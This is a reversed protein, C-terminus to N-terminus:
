VYNLVDKFFNPWYYGDRLIKNTTTEKAIHGRALGDHLDKLVKDVDEKELCQLLVSVYNKQLVIGNM